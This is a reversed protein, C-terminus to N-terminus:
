GGRTVGAYLAALADAVRGTRCADALRLAGASARAWAAPDALLDGIAAALAAPDRSSVTRGADYDRVFAAIGAAVSAIIPTGHAGAEVGHRNFGDLISPIVSLDAAALFRGQGEFPLTGLFRVREDLGLATVQARLADSTGGRDPGYLLLYTAPHRALVAPLADVLIDFGKIPLVRGSSILLRAGAPLGLEALVAARSEARLAPLPVTPYFSEALNLPIVAIKGPACGYGEAARALHPAMARVGGVTAFVRRLERRVGPSRPYGYSGDPAILVDGGHLTVVARAARGGLARRVIAGMPFAMEIQLLLDPDAALRARLWPRLYRAATLVYPYGWRRGGIRNLLRDLPTRSIAVSHITLEGDHATAVPERQGPPALTVIAGPYGRAALAALMDAHVPIAMSGPRYAATFYLLKAGDTPGSV